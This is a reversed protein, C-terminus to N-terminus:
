ARGGAKIPPRQSLAARLEAALEPDLGDLFADISGEPGQLLLGRLGACPVHAFRRALV